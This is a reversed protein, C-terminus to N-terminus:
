NEKKLQEEILICGFSSLDKMTTESAIFVRDKLDKKSKLLEYFGLGLTGSGCVLIRFDDKKFEESATICILDEELIAGLLFNERENITTQGFQEIARVCFAARTLGMKKCTDAGALLYEKNITQAYSSNLAESIITSTTYQMLTEGAMTTLCAVIKNDKDMFVFKTHSGPLILISPGCFKECAIAGFAEVEEGRMMDINYCYKKTFINDSTVNNRVGPIIKLPHIESIEPVLVEKIAEALDKMSVPTMLHPVEYVGLNSSLMGSALICSIDKETINIQKMAEQYAESIAYLLKKNNGNISTIRVGVDKKVRSFVQDRNRICVRTNTTGTDICAIYM